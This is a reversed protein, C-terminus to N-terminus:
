SRNEGARYGRRKVLVTREGEFVIQDRQNIGWHRFTVRGANAAGDPETALVESFAYLTDGHFVPSKLRIKDLRLERVANEGTDQMTLGIVLATALLLVAVMGPLSGRVPVEAPWEQGLLGAVFPLVAGILVLAATLVVAIAALALLRVAIFRRRDPNAVLSTRITGYAFEASTLAAALYALLALLLLQVNQLTAGISQPFAYLALQEVMQRRIDELIEPPVDEGPAFHMQQAGSLGSVYAVVALGLLALCM